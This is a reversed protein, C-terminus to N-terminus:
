WNISCSLLELAAAPSVHCRLQWAAGSAFRIGTDVVLKKFRKARAKWDCGLHPNGVQRVFSIHEQLKQPV